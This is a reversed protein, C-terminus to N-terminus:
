AEKLMDVQNILIKVDNSSNKMYRQTEHLGDLNRDCIAIQHCGELVFSIAAARGIGPNSILITTYIYYHNSFFMSQFLFPQRHHPPTYRFRRWDRPRRRPIVDHSQPSILLSLSSSGLKVETRSALTLEYFCRSPFFTAFQLPKFPYRSSASIRRFDLHPPPLPFKPCCKYSPHVVPTPHFPPSEYSFCSHKLHFTQYLKQSEHYENM